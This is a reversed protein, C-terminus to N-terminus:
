GPIRFKEKSYTSPSLRMMAILFMATLEPDAQVLAENSGEYTSLDIPSPGSSAWVEMLNPM